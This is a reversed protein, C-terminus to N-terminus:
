MLGSSSGLRLFYDPRANRPAIAKCPNVATQSKLPLVEAGNGFRRTDLRPPQHQFRANGQECYNVKLDGQIAQCEDLKPVKGTFEVSNRPSEDLACSIPVRYLLRKFAGTCFACPTLLRKGDM